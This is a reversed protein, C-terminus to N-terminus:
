ETFDGADGIRFVAQGSSVLSATYVLELGEADLPVSWAIEGRMRRGAGIEGDVSGRADLYISHDMSYGEVDVLDFQLLSSIHAPEDGDNEVTIDICMFVQGDDPTQWESGASTRVENVTILLDGMRVRDGIDFVETQTQEEPEQAPAPAPDPEAPESAPEVTEGCGVGVIMLLCVLLMLFGKVWSVVIDSRVTRVALLSISKPAAQVLGILTNSAGAM